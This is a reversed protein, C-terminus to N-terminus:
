ALVPNLLRELGLSARLGLDAANRRGLAPAIM